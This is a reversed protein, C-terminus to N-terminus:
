PVKKNKKGKKAPWCLDQCHMLMCQPCDTLVAQNGEEKPKWCADKCITDMCGTCDTPKGRKAAQKAAETPSVKGSGAQEEPAPKPPEPSASTAAPVKDKGADPASPGCGVLAAVVFIAAARCLLRSTLFAGMM